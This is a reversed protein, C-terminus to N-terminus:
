SRSGREYALRHQESEWRPLGLRLREEPSYEASWRRTAPPYEQNVMQGNHQVHYGQESAQSTAYGGGHQYPRSELGHNATGTGSQGDELVLENGYTIDPAYNNHIQNMAHSEAHREPMQTTEDPSTAKPQGGNTHNGNVYQYGRAGLRTRDVSSQNV